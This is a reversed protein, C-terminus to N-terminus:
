ECSFVKRGYEDEVYFTSFQSKRQCWKAIFEAEKFTLNKKNTPVDTNRHVYQSYMKVRM